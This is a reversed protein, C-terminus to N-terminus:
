RVNAVDTGNGGNLTGTDVMLQAGSVGTERGGDEGDGGGVM